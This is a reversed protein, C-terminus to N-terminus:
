SPTPLLSAPSYPIFPSLRPINVVTSANLLVDALAHRAANLSAVRWSSARMPLMDRAHLHRVALALATPPEATRFGPM